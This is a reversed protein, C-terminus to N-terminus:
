QHIAKEAEVRAQTLERKQTELDVQLAQLEHILRLSDVNTLSQTTEKERSLEEESHRYSGDKIFDNKKM